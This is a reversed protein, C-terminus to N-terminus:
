STTQCDNFVNEASVMSNTDTNYDCADIPGPMVRDNVHCTTDHPKTDYRVDCLETGSLESEFSEHDETASEYEEKTSLGDQYLEDDSSELEDLQTESCDTESSVYSNTGDDSEYEDDAMNSTSSVSSNSVQTQEGVPPESERRFLFDTCHCTSFLVSVLFIGFYLVSAGITVFLLSM